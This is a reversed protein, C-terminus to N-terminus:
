SYLKHLWFEGITRGRKHILRVDCSIAVAARMEHLIMNAGTIEGVVDEQVLVCEMHGEVCLLLEQPVIFLDPGQGQRTRGEM